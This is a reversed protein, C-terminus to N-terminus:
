LVLKNRKYQVAYKNYYALYIGGKEKMKKMIWDEAASGRRAVDGDDSYQWYWDHNRINKTFEDFEEDGTIHATRLMEQSRVIEERLAAAVKESVVNKQRLAFAKVYEMGAHMALDYLFAEKGAAETYDRFNDQDFSWKHFHLRDRFEDLSPIFKFKRKQETKKNSQEGSQQNNEM